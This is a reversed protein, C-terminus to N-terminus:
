CVYLRQGPVILRANPLNNAQALQTATKGFMRGIRFLNDGAKVTYYCGQGPTTAGQPICLRQGTKILRPNSLGNAQALADTTLGFQRAIRFLNDGAKVTYHQACAPPRGGAPILLRQGVYIRTSNLHNANMIQQVTVGFTRAIRSLTDGDKVVYWVGEAAAAATPAGAAPAAFVAGPLLSLALALVLALLAARRQPTAGRRQVATTHHM